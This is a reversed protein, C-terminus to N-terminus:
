QNQAVNPSSWIWSTLVPICSPCLHPLYHLVQQPQCASSPWRPCWRSTNVLAMCAGNVASITFYSCRFWPKSLLIDTFGLLVQNTSKKRNYSHPPLSHDFPAGSSSRIIGLEPLCNGLDEWAWWLMIVIIEIELSFYFPWFLSSTGSLRM